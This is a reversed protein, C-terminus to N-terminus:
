LLRGQHHPCSRQASWFLHIIIRVNQHSMRCIRNFSSGGWVAIGQRHITALLSGYPAWQVFSETWFSRKYVDEPQSRAADNWLVETEDGHRVVFEDRGRPDTLWEQLNEQLVLRM